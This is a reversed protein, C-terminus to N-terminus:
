SPLSSRTHSRGQMAERAERPHVGRDHTPEDNIGPGPNLVESSTPTSLLDPLQNLLLTLEERVRHRDRLYDRLQPPFIQIVRLSPSGDGGVRFEHHWAPCVRKFCSKKMCRQLLFPM